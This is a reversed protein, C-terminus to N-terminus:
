ATTLGAIRRPRIPPRARLTRAFSHTDLVTFSDFSTTALDSVTMTGGVSDIDYDYATASQSEPSESVWLEPSESVWLSPSESVWLSRWPSEPSESM